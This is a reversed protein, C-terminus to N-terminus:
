SHFARGYKLMATNENGDLFCAQAAEAEGSVLVLEKYCPLILSYRNACWLISYLGPEVNLALM